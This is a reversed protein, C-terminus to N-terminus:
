IHGVVLILDAGAAKVQPFVERLAQEYPLFDLDAVFDPQTDVPTEVTTLGILGINIGNVNLTTFPLAFDPVSGGDKRRINASLFPFSAQAHRARLSEQGYDFDHNGIAAAQYGMANMVDIMSEGEYWTSLAPGTWMDGGSLILFPEAPDYGEQSSWLHSMGDAGSAGEWAEMWGHEDNTYLIMLRRINDTERGAFDEGPAVCSSVFAAAGLLM